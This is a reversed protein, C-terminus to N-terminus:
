KKTLELYVDHLKKGKVLNAKDEIKAIKGHNIIAIRSCLEEAEELYHTTLFITTGKKNIDRLFDWLEIRLEVDLGATPEDLIIIKPEHIMARALSLRRKMGGSLKDIGQKRKEWLSFQKLLQESRENAKKQPIGYYGAAYDLIEKCNLYRDFNFEQPSLGIHMRAKRFQKVVDHGHVKITGKQFKVLGVISNITTTKGAGNPGLFGFFEGQKIDLDLNDVATLEDYTKTLGSINIASTM